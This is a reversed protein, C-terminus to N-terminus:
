IRMGRVREVEDRFDSLLREVSVFSYPREEDGIHQHDGKGRENDFAVLREGQRGYFLSYKFHHESPPVPAPVSWVKVDIIAGDDLVLRQRIVLTANPMYSLTGNGLTLTM